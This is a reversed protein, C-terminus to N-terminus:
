RPCTFECVEHEANLLHFRDNNGATFDIFATTGGDVPRRGTPGNQTM